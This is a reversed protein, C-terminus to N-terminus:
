QTRKEIEERLRTAVMNAISRRFQEDEALPRVIGGPAQKSFVGGDGLYLRGPTGDQRTAVVMKRDYLGKELKIAYDQTNYFSWQQKGTKKPRTWSGKLRGTEKQQKKRDTRIQPVYVPTRGEVATRFLLAAQELAIDVVKDSALSGLLAQVAELEPRSIEAKLEFM